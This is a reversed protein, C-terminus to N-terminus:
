EIIERIRSNTSAARSGIRDDIGRYSGIGTVRGEADFFVMLLDDRSSQDSDIWLPVSPLEWSFFGIDSILSFDLYITSTDDMRSRYVFVEGREQAVVHVPPGLTTLVDPKLVAGRALAAELDIRAQESFARNTRYSTASYFSTTCGFTFALGIALLAGRRESGTRRSM